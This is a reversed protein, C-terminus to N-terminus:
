VLRGALLSPAIISEAGGSPSMVYQDRPGYNHDDFCESVSSGNSCLDKIHRDKNSM